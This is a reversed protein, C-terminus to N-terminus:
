RRFVHQPHAPQQQPRMQHSVDDGEWEAELEAMEMDGEANMDTARGGAARDKNAQVRRNSVGGSPSMVTKDYSVAPPLSASPRPSAYTSTATSHPPTHKKAAHRKRCFCCYTLLALLVVGAFAGIIVGAILSDNSSSGFSSSDTVTANVFASSSASYLSSSMSFVSSTSSVDDVAAPASSSFSSSSAFDSTAIGPPVASSSPSTSSSPATSSTVSSSVATGASATGATSSTTSSSSRVSQATSATGSNTVVGSGSNGTGAATSSVPASPNGPLLFGSSVSTNVGGAANSVQVKFAYFQNGVLGTTLAQWSWTSATFSWVPQTVWTFNQSSGSQDNTYFLAISTLPNSPYCPSTTLACSLNLGQPFGVQVTINPASALYVQPSNPIPPPSLVLISSNVSINGSPAVYPTSYLLPAVIPPYPFDANCATVAFSYASLGDRRLNYQFTTLNSFTLFFSQAATLPTSSNSSVRLQYSIISSTPSFPPSWSLQVTAQSATVNILQVAPAPMRTPPYTLAYLSYFYALISDLEGSVLPQFGIAVDRFSAHLGGTDGLTFSSVALNAPITDTSDAPLVFTLVECGIVTRLVVIANSQLFPPVILTVYQWQSFSLPIASQITIANLQATILTLQVYFQNTQQFPTGSAPPVPVTSLLLSGTM